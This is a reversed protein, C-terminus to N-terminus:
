TADQTKGKIALLDKELDSTGSIPLLTVSPLISSCVLSRFGTCAILDNQIVLIGGYRSRTQESYLCGTKVAAYYIGFVHWTDLSWKNISM